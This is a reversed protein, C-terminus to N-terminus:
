NAGFTKTWGEAWVPQGPAFAGQFNVSEFWEGELAIGNTAANTPVISLNQLVEELDSGAFSLGPNIFANGNSAFSEAFLQNESDNGGSVTFVEAPDTTNAAIDWFLNNKLSLEGALFRNYSDQGSALKEIDVGQSFHIYINNLFHGGANDRLTLARNGAQNGRGIVTCNAFTPIAYPTGTEPDTGGDHEGGRDGILPNQVILGFQVKGRFGEDYDFSDDACGTLVIHKMQATGGFCEIGDDNNAIVEIYDLQTERGVGGLTLGNIENGAGIDTGGHRISVYRISGSNDDDDDGGYLGRTESTPIGEIATEGPTSNLKANGLIILGGWRGRADCPTTLGDMGLPDGEYTMIIPQDATGEAILKGGRAVVLASAAAGQGGKGKVITGPEITLTQGANVFVRGDLIWVRDNTWTMTGTGEGKDTVSTSPMATAEDEGQAYVTAEANKGPDAPPDEDTTCSPFIAFGGLLLFILLSTFKFKKMTKM